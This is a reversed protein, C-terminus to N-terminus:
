AVPTAGTYISVFVARPTLQITDSDKYRKEVEGHGLVKALDHDGPDLGALSLLEGASQRRDEVTYEAGDITFTVQAPGHKTGEDHM